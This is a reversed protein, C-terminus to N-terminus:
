IKLILGSITPSIWGKSSKMNPWNTNSINSVRQSKDKQLNGVPNEFVAYSRTAGNPGQGDGYDYLPNQSDYLQQYNDNRLFGSFPFYKQCVPISQFGGTEGFNQKSYTYSLATTLRLKSTISYDVNSRIGFREFGSGILYGKDDLYNLSTYSKVQEGSANIGVTAERRL